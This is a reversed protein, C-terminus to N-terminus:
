GLEKRQPSAPIRLSDRMTLNRRYGHWFGACVARLSELRGREHGMNSAVCRLLRVILLFRSRLTGYLHWCVITENRAMFYRRWPPEISRVVPKRTLFSKAHQPRGLGHSVLSARVQAIRFGRSRIRLNYEHDVWDMFFDTRPLGAEEIARRRILSGSSMVTDVFFIPLRAKAPQVSVLRDRWVHGVYECGRQSDVLLPALIGLPGEKETLTAYASLLEELARFDPVSDQDFLWFWEHGEQLAYELGATFGGGVGLNRELRLLAIQPFDRRVVECTGDTSNNDVVIIEQLPVTQAQLANLHRTITGIGNWAVTISAVACKERHPSPVTTSQEMPM